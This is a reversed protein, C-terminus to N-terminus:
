RFRPLPSGNKSLLIQWVQLERARFAGACGLLYFKWMRYFRRSYRDKLEPWHRDFNEFWTMLTRDYDPGINHWDEMVWLGECAAGLQAVSPIMAHPFIYRNMWPELHTTSVNNGITHLLFLGDEALCNAAVEMFRRYNKYGVHEFMGISVIRDFREGHLERYDQLRIEVDLGACRRKSHAYQHKSLTIGVVRAQHREAAHQAFAGWGSGIDLVRMGPKLGLKKCCLELKNEQAEDLTRAGRWYACSYVMRRDLMAEYIDNGIDYHRRANRLAQPQNQLNFFKARLLDFLVSWSAIERDLRARFVRCTMEDLRPCDWWGDMYSEGVGLTGDALVRDYFKENHVRLDWPRRGNIKIDAPALLQELTSKGATRHGDRLRWPFPNLRAPNASGAKM